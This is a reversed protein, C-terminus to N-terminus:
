RGVQADLADATGSLSLFWRGDREVAIVVLSVRAGDLSRLDQPDAEVQAGSAGDLFRRRDEPLRRARIDVEVTGGTVTIEARDADEDLEVDVEIDRLDLDTANLVALVVAHDAEGHEFSAALDATADGFDDSEPVLVRQLSDNLSRRVEGLDDFDEDDLLAVIRAVDKENAADVLDAALATPSAAGRETGGLALPIGVAAVPLIALGVFGVQWGRRLRGGWLPRRGALSAARSRDHDM